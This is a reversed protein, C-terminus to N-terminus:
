QATISKSLVSNAADFTYGSKVINTVTLTYTGRDGSTSLKYKGKRDSGVVQAQTTGNPLTWTAYVLAGPVTAGNGDRVIVEATVTAKRGRLAATLTIATSRLLTAPNVGVTITVSDSGRENNSDTVTLTATYTGPAFYTYTPNAENSKPGFPGAFEWRHSTITGDPDFSGSSDFNVTLPAAGSSPSAAAVAVPPQNTGNVDIVVVDTGTGGRSDFVTLTATHVGVTNFTHYATSGYYLGGDSFNWQINGLFGDPDYSGAASFVVALPAKGSTPNASAVAIPPVNPATANIALAQTTAEGLDDTVTLTVLRPAPSTFTHTPNPLTSMAGDGFDWVYSVISGDPDNSGLSDFSVSLPVDGASSSANLVAVPWRNGGAGFFDGVIRYSTFDADNILLSGAILSEGNGAVVTPDTEATPSATFVFGQPDVITGSPDIRMAFLDGRADLQDLTNLALRNKQDQYAVIFYTGDWAVRPRYQNGSWPTLNIPAGVSGDSQIVRALLDTEVGSTLEQSQVMLAVAGNSALGVEFIGNGGATSFPGHITFEPTKTGDTSVFAGMTLAFSDDHSANRHWAVLWRGGLEVVAPMRGAYISGLSLPTPDLVTGDAGRVRAAIPFIYQPSLIYNRGTVLFDAGLAAVDAPGFGPSMVVFPAADVASGDALLRQAVVGASSGWVVMYLSGNWAVSPSGPGTLNSGADLQIPATTLPTGNADLPQALVRSTAATDSRYALLYGNGDSAIDARLQRATSTSLGINASASNAASVNATQVDYNNAAFETWVLQLGGSGNAAAVGVRPGPVAVGGPDLVQGATDIRAVRLTNSSGWTVKWDIGDWTVGPGASAPNAGSINDGNDDLKVGATSIRSGTVATSFDPLQQNWVAYFEVGNSALGGLSQELLPLPAPDLPMLNGDFRVASTAFLGNVYLDDFTLLYVGGAHALRLNSRQYYTAALVSRGASDLLAGDASIRMAVIDNTASTGQNVVVWGDGDSAVAWYRGAPTLGVLQIPPDDLVQGAASVRVAQLAKQYYGTGGVDYSEFVVLWNSGNWSLQPNDQSSPGAVLAIPLPDIPNGATDLRVAYLDRSTEYEYFTTPNARGDSWVALFTNDAFAIAPAIQDGASLEIADDGPLLLGAAFTPLAVVCAATALTISFVKSFKKM